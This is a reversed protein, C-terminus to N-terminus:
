SNTQSQAARSDTQFGLYQTCLASIIFYLEHLSLHECQVITRCPRVVIIRSQVKVILRM